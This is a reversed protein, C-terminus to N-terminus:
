AALKQPPRPAEERAADPDRWCHTVLRQLVQVASTAAVLELWGAGRWPLFPLGLLACAAAGTLALWVILTVQMAGNVMERPAISTVECEPPAAEARAVFSAPASGAAAHWTVLRDHLRVTDRVCASLRPSSKANFRVVGSRGSAADEWRVMVRRSRLFGVPEDKLTIAVIQDRALAFRSEEGLYRLGDPEIVLFGVDWDMFGEYIRVRAEPALGVFWSEREAGPALDRALREGLGRRLAPYARMALWEVAAASLLLGAAFAALAALLRPAGAASALGLAVAPGLVGPILLQWSMRTRTQMKWPTSFIKADGATGTPAAYHDAPAPPTELLATVRAADLGGLKGIAYARRKTSPHTLLREQWPSWDLPLHNLHSIRVLALILAEADGTLKVADADAEHEFRRSVLFFALLGSLAGAVPASPGLFASLLVNGLVVGAALTLMLAMPHGRKVHALEHALVADVERRSLESLLLDTIAVQRGQAAFANALRSRAAPIVYLQQLRVGAKAALAFLRDRLEGSSVAHPEFGMAKLVRRLLALRTALAALACAAAERGHGGGAAVAAVALLGVPVLVSLLQWLALEIAERRTGGIGRLRVAVDHSFVAIVVAVLSPPVAILLLGLAPALWRVSMPLVDWVPRMVGGTLAVLLSALWSGLVIGMSARAFGFWAVAPDAARSRLAVNRRWWALAVPIIVLAALQLLFNPLAQERRAFARDAADAHTVCASALVAFCASAITCAARYRAPRHPPHTRRM